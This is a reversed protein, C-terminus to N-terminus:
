MEKKNLNFDRALSIGISYKSSIQGGTGVIYDVDGKYYKYLPIDAFASLVWKGGVFYTLTPICYVVNSGQSLLRDNPIKSKDTKKYENRFQLMGIFNTVIKKSIILTTINLDGVTYKDPNQLNTEFRNILFLNLGYNSFGKKMILHGVFGFARSSPQVELPLRVNDIVLANTTFPYKFGLGISIETEKIPSIYLGYKVSFVGNSFGYGKKALRELSTDNLHNVKNIFYGTENEVSIRKTIGYGLVLSTFNYYMYKIPGYNILRINDHYYTEFYGYKYSATVRLTNKNLVGANSSGCPSGMGCCQSFANNNLFIIFFLIEIARKM